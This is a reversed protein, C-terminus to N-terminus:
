EVFVASTMAWAGASGSAIVFLADGKEARVRVVVDAGMATSPLAALKLSRTEGKGKARVVRVNDVGFQPACEVHVKLTVDRGKATGGPAVGNASVRLFPGNSLVVDRRKVLGDVFDASRAADWPDLSADNSVRVYTRPAGPEEGVIGHTDSNATPTVVHGAALMAAYDVVVADREAVNSSNWVELADYAGDYETDTGAGKARDFGLKLFYGAGANRPHNVQIVFPTTITRRLETFLDGPERDRVRPAGGRPKTVDYPVPFVNAHGWPKTSADSTLEIGSLEVVWPVLGLEKVLPELDAYTDHESSVAVEVGEAANAVVRDHPTVPSDPGIATHQHLDASLYGSTDVIRRLFLSARAAPGPAVVIEQRQVDYEPGRSATLAYHGPALPISATGTATTIQNRAPGAVFPPGLDVVGGDLDEITVTCPLPRVPMSRGGRNPNSEVCTTELSGAAGVHLTAHAVKGADVDVTVKAGSARRGGGSEYAVTYVGPPLEGGLADDAARMSVVAEGRANTFAVKADPPPKMPKGDDGVLDITIEGVPSGASQTLEAILSASDGRVGVALIRGAELTGGKRFPSAIDLTTNSWTSGSTATLDGDTSAIAYSVFRGIGGLYAGSSAGRFGLSKEPAIKEATGWQIADGLVVRDIDHGSDNAIRTTILVARDSAALVYRTVVALQDEHLAHGKVEIWASGGAGTGSTMDVYVAQMPFAGLATWIQALEDKKIHADAADILNGGSEAFGLPADLRNVVFVVEANALVWDGPRGAASSGGLEEGAAMVHVSARATPAGADTPAGRGMVAWARAAAGPVIPIQGDYAKPEVCAATAFGAVLALRRVM